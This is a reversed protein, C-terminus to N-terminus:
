AIKAKFFVGERACQEDEAISAAGGEFEEDVVPQTEPKTDASERL